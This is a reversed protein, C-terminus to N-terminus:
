PKKDPQAAAKKALDALLKKFDARDRLPALDADTATHKADNWGAMVARELLEMSKDAYEEKKDAIKASALSYVCAVNYWDLAKCYPNNTLEAVEAVAEALMGATALSTAHNARRALEFSAAIAKQQREREPETDVAQICWELYTQESRERSQELAIQFERRADANRNLKWYCRALTLPAVAAGRERARVLLDVAWHDMERFAYWEGFVALAVPDGPAQRFKAQAAAVRTEWTRHSVGHGFDWVKLTGDFSGSLASRGDPAFVVATVAGSHGALKRIEKGTALDWLRLTKDLSGSVAFRGKPAIAVSLVRQSHGKLIRLLIGTNLDHFMLSEDDNASLM